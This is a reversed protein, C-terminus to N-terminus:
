SHPHRSTPVVADVVVMRTATRKAHFALRAFRANPALPPALSLRITASADMNASERADLAVSIPSSSIMKANQLASGLQRRYRSGRDRLGVIRPTAFSSRVGASGVVDSYPSHANCSRNPVLSKRDELSATRSSKPCVAAPRLPTNRITGDKSYTLWRTAGEENTSGSTRSMTARARSRLPAAARALQTPRGIKKSFPSKARVGFNPSATGNIWERLRDGDIIPSGMRGIMENVISSRSGDGYLHGVPDVKAWDLTSLSKMSRALIQVLRYGASMGPGGDESPRDEGIVDEGTCVHPNELERGRFRPRNGDVFVSGSVLFLSCIRSLRLGM